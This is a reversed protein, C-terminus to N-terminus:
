AFVYMKLIFNFDKGCSVYFPECERGKEKM